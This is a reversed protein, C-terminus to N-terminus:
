LFATNQVYYFIGWGGANQFSLGRGCGGGHPPAGVGPNADRNNLELGIAMDENKTQHPCIHGPASITNIRKHQNEVKTKQDM